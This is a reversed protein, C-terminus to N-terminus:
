KGPVAAEMKAEPGGQKMQISGWRSSTECMRPSPTPTLTTKCPVVVLVGSNAEAYGCPMSAM